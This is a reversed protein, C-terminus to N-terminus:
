KMRRAPRICSESKLERFGVETTNKRQGATRLGAEFCRGNAVGKERVDKPTGM